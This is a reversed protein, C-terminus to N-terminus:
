SPWRRVLHDRQGEGRRLRGRLGRPGPPVQSGRAPKIPSVAGRSSRSPRRCVARVSGLGRGLPSGGRPGSWSRAWGPRRIGAPWPAASPRDPPPVRCSSIAPSAVAHGPEVSLGRCQAVDQEEHERESRSLRRMGAASIGLMAMLTNKRKTNLEPSEDTASRGPKLPDYRAKMMGTDITEADTPPAPVAPCISTRSMSDPYKVLSSRVGADRSASTHPGMTAPATSSTACTIRM